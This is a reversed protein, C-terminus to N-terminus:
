LGKQGHSILFDDYSRIYDSEDYIGSALVVCVANASFDNLDLWLGAPVFLARNPRDLTVDTRVTGDDITVRCLGCPAFLFQQQERHAHGGRSMNPAIDYLYFVRRPVFPIHAPEEAFSLSGRDDHIHPLDIIRHTSM